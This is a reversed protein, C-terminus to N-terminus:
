SLMQEVVELVDKSKVEVQITKLNNKILQQWSSDFKRWKSFSERLRATVQPNIADLRM